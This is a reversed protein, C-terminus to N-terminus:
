RGFRTIGRRAAAPLDIVRLDILLLLVVLGLVRRLDIRRPRIILAPQKVLLASAPNRADNGQVRENAGLAAMREKAVIRAATHQTMPPCATKMFPVAMANSM